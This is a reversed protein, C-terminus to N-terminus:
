VLWLYHLAGGGGGESEQIHTYMQFHTRQQLWVSLSTLLLSARLTALKAKKELSKGGLFAVQSLDLSKTVSISTM